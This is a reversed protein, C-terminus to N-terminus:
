ASRWTTQLRIVLVGAVLLAVLLYAASWRGSDGRTQVMAIPLVAVAVALYALHTSLERPRHGAVLGGVDFAAQVLLVYQLTVVARATGAWTFRGTVLRAGVTLATGLCALTIAFSLADIM